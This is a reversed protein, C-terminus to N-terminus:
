VENKKNHSVKKFRTYSPMAQTSRLYKKAAALTFFSGSDYGHHCPDGVFYVFWDGDKTITATKKGKGPIAKLIGHSVDIVNWEAVWKM